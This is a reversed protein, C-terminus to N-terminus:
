TTPIDPPKASNDILGNDMYDKIHTYWEQLKERVTSEPFFLKLWPPILSYVQLSYQRM